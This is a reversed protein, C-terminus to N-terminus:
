MQRLRAVREQTPPHTSFLSSMNRKLGGFPNIIYNSAQNPNVAMPMQHAYGELKLLARALPEGSGILKAASADASYERSRSVAMQIISAAIPALFATALLAIPNPRDDDNRGGGMFATWQLMQAIMTIAMGIAAAVSGILIDRNDIHSLEDALVGRVEDWSMMQLLGQNVCVAAHKPNRGTAFANPQPSPCIYLRPMPLQARQALEEVIQYYEPAEQRTVAIAGASKIALKDSFWYSGGVMVLGLVLGIILGPGRGIIGGILVFLGGLAALLVATKGYNKFMHIYKRRVGRRAAITEVNSSRALNWGAVDQTFSTSLRALRQTSKQTAFTAM